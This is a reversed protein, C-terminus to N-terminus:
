PPRAPMFIHSHTCPYEQQKSFRIPNLRIIKASVSSRRHLDTSLTAVPRWKELCRGALRSKASINVSKVIYPWVACWRIGGNALKGSLTFMDLKNPTFTHTVAVHNLVHAARPHSQGQIQMNSYRVEAQHILM